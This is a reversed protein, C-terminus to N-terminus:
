RTRPKSGFEPTAANQTAELRQIQEEYAKVFARGFLAEFDDEAEM